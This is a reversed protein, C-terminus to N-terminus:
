ATEPLSARQSASSGPSSRSRDSSPPPPEDQRPLLVSEIAWDLARRNNQRMRGFHQALQTKLANEMRLLAAQTTPPPIARLGPANSGQNAHWSGGAGCRLVVLVPSCPEVAGDDPLLKPSYDARSGQTPVLLLEQPKPNGAISQEAGLM